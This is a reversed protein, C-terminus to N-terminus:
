PPCKPKQISRDRNLQARLGEGFECCVKSGAAPAPSSICGISGKAVACGSQGGASASVQIGPTTQALCCSTFCRCAGLTAPARQIYPGSITHLVDHRLTLGFLIVGTLSSGVGKRFPAKLWWRLGQPWLTKLILNVWVKCKLTTTALAQAVIHVLDSHWIGPRLSQTLPSTCSLAALIRAHLELAVRTSSPMRLVFHVRQSKFGSGEAHAASTFGGCWPGM